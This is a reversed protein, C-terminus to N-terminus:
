KALLRVIDVPRLLWRRLEPPFFTSLEVEKYDGTLYPVKKKLYFADVRPLSPAYEDKIIKELQPRIAYLQDQRSLDAFPEEDALVPPTAARTAASSRYDDPDPIEEKLKRLGGLQDDALSIHFLSLLCVGKLTKVKDKDEDLFLIESRKAARTGIVDRAQVIYRDSALTLGPKFDVLKALFWSNSLRLLCTSDM